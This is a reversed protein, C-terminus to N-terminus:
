SSCALLDRRYRRCPRERGGQLCGNAVSMDTSRSADVAPKSWRTTREVVPLVTVIRLRVRRRAGDEDIRCARRGQAPQDV